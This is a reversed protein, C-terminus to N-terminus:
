RGSPIPAGVGSPAECRVAHPGLVIYISLLPGSLTEGCKSMAIHGDLTDGPEAHGQAALHAGPPPTSAGNSDDRVGLLGDSNACTPASGALRSAPAPSHPSSRLATALAAFGALTPVSRPVECCMAPPSCPSCAGSDQFHAAFAILQSRVCHRSAANVHESRSCTLVTHNRLFWVTTCASGARACRQERDTCPPRRQACACRSDPGM